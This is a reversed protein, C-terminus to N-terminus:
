LFLDRHKREGPTTTTTTTTSPSTMSVSATGLMDSKGGVHRERSWPTVANSSTYVCVYKHQFVVVACTKKKLKEGGSCPLYPYPLSHCPPLPYYPPVTHLDLALSLCRSIPRARGGSGSRLEDPCVPGLPMLVIRFCQIFFVTSSRTADFYLYFPQHYCQLCCTKNANM